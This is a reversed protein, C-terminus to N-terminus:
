SVIQHRGQDKRLRTREYLEVSVDHSLLVNRIPDLRIRNPGIITKVHTREDTVVLKSLEDCGLSYAAGGSVGYELYSFEPDYFTEEALFPAYDQAGDSYNKVDFSITSDIYVHGDELDSFRYVKLYNERVLATEVIGSIQAQLQAPLGRGVLREALDGTVRQILFKV